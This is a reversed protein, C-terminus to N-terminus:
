YLNCCRNFFVTSVHLSIVSKLSNHLSIAPFFLLIPLPFFPLFFPLFAIIKVIYLILFVLNKLPFYNCYIDTHMPNQHFISLAYPSIASSSTLNFIGSTSSIQHFFYFITIFKFIPCYPM